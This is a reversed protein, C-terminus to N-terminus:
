WGHKAKIKLAEAKLENNPNSGINFTGDVEVGDANIDIYAELQGYFDFYYRKIGHTLEKVQTSKIM